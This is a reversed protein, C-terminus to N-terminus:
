STRLAQPARTAAVARRCAAVVRSIATESLDPAMPIGLLVPGLSETNPLEDRTARAFHTQRHVGCGYWFRCEIDEGDFESVVANIERGTMGQFLAYNGDIEPWGLFRDALGAEEFGARYRASVRAIGKLKAAWGDLAALGVAATYENMKANISPVLSDRSGLFGFNMAPLIKRMRDPDTCVVCGGEGIGFSKTAHFSFV